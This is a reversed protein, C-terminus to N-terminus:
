TTTQNVFIPKLDSVDIEGSGDRDCMRYFKLAKAEGMKVGIQPLMEVFEEYDIGGSGDKDYMNFIEEPTMRELMEALQARNSKESREAQAKAIDEENMEDNSEAKNADTM